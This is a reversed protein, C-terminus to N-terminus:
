RILPQKSPKGGARPYSKPTEKEKKILILSREIDSEPLTFTLTNEIKAGLIKVAYAAEEIEESVKGSKYPIFYGKKKVFPICFESLTALRAVARSVCFDFSERYEEKRGLEEARAHLAKIKTLSLQGIVENLFNVRKNLSDVMLIDMEPFTIKLPIAPFGAGSGMDLLKKGNLEKKALVLSLSDLFHKILVEKYDIIATLNMVNNWEILLDYYQEFQQLQKDTLVIKFKQLGKILVQNDRMNEGMGIDADAKKVRIGMGDGKQRPVFLFSFKDKVRIGMEASDKACLCSQLLCRM